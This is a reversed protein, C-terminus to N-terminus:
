EKQFSVIRSVLGSTAMDPNRYFASLEILAMGRDGQIPIVQAQDAVGRVFLSCKKAKAPVWKLRFQGQNLGHGLGQFEAGEATLSGSIKSELALLAASSDDTMTVLYKGYKSMGTDIVMDAVFVHFPTPFSDYFVGNFKRTHNTTVIAELAETRDRITIPVALKSRKADFGGDVAHQRKLKPPEAIVVDEETQTQPLQTETQSSPM